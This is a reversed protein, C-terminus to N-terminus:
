DKLFPNAERWESFAKEARQAYKERRERKKAKEELPPMLGFHANSPQFNRVPQRLHALLAGLASERPPTPLREGRAQASLLIALWLGSAASEVYGEVGSLQGAIHIDPRNYLALKDNLVHPADIYSNRHLSGYRAFEVNELGPVLRFIRAQEKQLLKTQCGVLNCTEMNAKEPRLQLVAWPRMGTRPDILGVPKMPGYALTRPGRAALAEIPMCGEFHKEEFHASCTQGACLAAHFKEYEERNMPCNIYDGAMDETKEYRSARFAIKMNVSATWVIPAIADYFHLHKQGSIAALSSALEDALLPGAALIVGKPGNKKLEPDDLSEIRKRALRIKNHRAIMKEMFKSFEERDVALASGAPVRCADAALMFFSGLARMENKLLGIGTTRENSRLSNSCVLEALSDTVHAPSRSEPKQEYLTVCHGRAALGLACECGALGAGIISFESHEM